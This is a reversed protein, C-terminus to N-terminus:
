LTLAFFEEGEIKSLFVGERADSIDMPFFGTPM